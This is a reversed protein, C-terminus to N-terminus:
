IGASPSGIWMKAPESSMDSVGSVGPEPPVGFQFGSPPFRDQGIWRCEAPDEEHASSRVRPPPKGPFSSWWTASKPIVASHLEDQEGGAPISQSTRGKGEM